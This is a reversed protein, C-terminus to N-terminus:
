SKAKLYSTVDALTVILLAAWLQWDGFMKGMSAMLVGIAIYSFLNLLMIFARM